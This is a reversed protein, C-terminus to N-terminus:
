AFGSDILWAWAACREMDGPSLSVEGLSKGALLRRERIAVIPGSMNVEVAAPGGDTKPPRATMGAPADNKTGMAAMLCGPDEGAELRFRTPPIATRDGVDTAHRVPPM